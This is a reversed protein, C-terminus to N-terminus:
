RIVINTHVFYLQCVVGAVFSFFAFWNLIRAPLMVFKKNLGTYSKGEYGREINKEINNLLHDQIVSTLRPEFVALIIAFAFLFWSAVLIHTHFATTLPVIQNIFAFSVGFSGAALVLINKHFRADAELQINRQEDWMSSFNDYIKKKREYEHAAQEHQVLLSQYIMQREEETEAGAYPDHNNLGSM